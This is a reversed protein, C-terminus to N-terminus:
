EGEGDLIDELHELSASFDKLVADELAKYEDSDLPQCAALKDFLNDRTVPIYSRSVLSAKYAEELADRAAMYLDFRALNASYRVLDDENIGRMSPHDCALEHWIQRREEDTPSSIDVITLPELLTYFFPDIETTQAASAFVYVEPNDVAARILAVAERAGRNLSALMLGNLEEPNLDTSPAVWEDLDELVLIGPGDFSMRSPVFKAQTDAQAMVCLVPHGQINEEMRMRVAPLGLEGVTAMVFRDADERVSSRFLMSDLAPASDVGHRANLLTVLDQYSEDNKMGVGLDRMLEVVRDYGVLDKYTLHEPYIGEQTKSAAQKATGFSPTAVSETKATEAQADSQANENLGEVPNAGASVDPMKGMTNKLKPFGPSMFSPPVQDIKVIRADGFELLDKSIMDTMDELEERSLGFEELKDLALEQLQHTCQSMEESSLYPALREFIYEAMSREKLECALEWAHRLGLLAADPIVSGSEKRAREFATLYLHMSLQLDGTALAAQARTLYEAYSVDRENNHSPSNNANNELM